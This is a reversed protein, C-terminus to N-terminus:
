PYSARGKTAAKRSNQHALNRPLSGVRCSACHIPNRCKKFFICSISYLCLVLNTTNKKKAGLAVDALNIYHQLKSNQHDPKDEPLNLLWPGQGRAELKNPRIVKVINVQLCM